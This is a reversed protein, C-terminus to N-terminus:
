KEEKKGKGGEKPAPKAKPEKPEKPEKSEKPKPSEKAEKAEKPKAPEKAKGGEKPKAGEKKAAPESPKEEGAAEGEGAAPAAPKEKADKGGKKAPKAGEKVEEKAPEEKSARTYIAQASHASVLRILGKAQLERLAKRALSGNIKLRESVVSVSIFKYAPVEKLLKDYTPKDFLVLNNL